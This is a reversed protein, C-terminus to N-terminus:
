AIRALQKIYLPVDRPIEVDNKYRPTDSVRDDEDKRFCMHEEVWGDVERLIHDYSQRLARQSKFM